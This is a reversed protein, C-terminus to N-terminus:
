QPKVTRPRRGVRQPGLDVPGHCIRGTRAMITILHVRAQRLGSVVKVGSKRATRLLPPACPDDGPTEPSLFYCISFAFSKQAFTLM